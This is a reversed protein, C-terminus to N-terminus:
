RRVQRKVKSKMATKVRRKVRRKKREEKGRSIDRLENDASRERQKDCNGRQGERATCKVKEENKV